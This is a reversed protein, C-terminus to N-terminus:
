KELDRVLKGNIMSADILEERLDEPLPDAFPPRPADVAVSSKVGHRCEGRGKKKSSPPPVTVTTNCIPCDATLGAGASEVVLHQGCKNCEFRIDPTEISIMERPARQIASPM